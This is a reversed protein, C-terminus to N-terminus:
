DGADVENSTTNRTLIKCNIRSGVIVREVSSQGKDGYANKGHECLLISAKGERKRM